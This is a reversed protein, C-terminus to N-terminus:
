GDHKGYTPVNDYFRVLSVYLAVPTSSSPQPPVHVTAAATSVYGNGGSDNELHFVSGNRSIFVLYVNARANHCM